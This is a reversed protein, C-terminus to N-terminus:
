VIQNSNGIGVFVRECDFRTQPHNLNESETARRQKRGSVVGYIGKSDGLIGNQLQSMKSLATRNRMSESTLTTPPSAGDRKPM